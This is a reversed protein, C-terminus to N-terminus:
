EVPLLYDVYAIWRGVLIITLWLMISVIAVLKTCAASGNAAGTARRHLYWSAMIAPALLLLKLGFVPNTFYRTPRALVFVFGTILM